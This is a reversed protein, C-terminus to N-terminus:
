SQLVSEFHLNLLVDVWLTVPLMLAEATWEEILPGLVTGELETAAPATVELVVEEEAVDADM